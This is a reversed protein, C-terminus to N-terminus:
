PSRTPCSPSRGARRCPQGAGRDDDRRQDRELAVLDLGRALLARDLEVRRQRLGLALEGDGLDFLAVHLEQEERGLLERARVRPRLQRLCADGQEHHVLRM